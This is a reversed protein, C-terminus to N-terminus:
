PAPNFTFIPQDLGPYIYQDLTINRSTVVGDIPATIEKLDNFKDSKELQATLKRAQAHHKSLRAAYLQSLKIMQARQTYAKAGLHRIEDTTSALLAEETLISNQLAELKHHINLTNADLTKISACIQGKKVMSGVDCSLSIVRGPTAPIISLASYDANSHPTKLTAEEPAHSTMQAMQPMHQNMNSMIWITGGIVLGVVLTGFALALSNNVNDRGTTLHLFFTLHVGIQAIALVALAVPIGPTWIWKSDVTYFSAVTLAASLGFGIFYILLSKLPSDVIADELGPAIGIETQPDNDITM